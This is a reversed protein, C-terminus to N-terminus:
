VVVSYIEKDEVKLWEATYVKDKLFSFTVLYGKSHRKQNLYGLLQDVGKKEYKRGRWIKLEIISEHGGLNVIIDMRNDERTEPEIYYFGKGNIIPKLFCLFLLRGERELFKNDRERYEDQIIEQFKNLVQEMNLLGNSQLFQSPELVVNLESMMKKSIMYNYICKEFIQNSIYTSDGQKDVIGFTNGLKIIPNYIEFPIRKGEVLISYVLNYLDPYIELNKILDDFLTNETELTLNIARQIGSVSWDKELKEDILKCIKSVLYPYGKTFHYIEESLLRINMQINSENAYDLLMSSIENQSYRMEVEFDSAINWPSNYKSDNDPRMKLKLNKIDYVGALVVSYFTHDAGISTSLYKNRLMGLFNLFLIHNSAKDIEDILLVVRKAVSRVLESIFTNLDDLSVIKPYEKIFQIASDSKSYELSKNMQSLFNKSLMEPTEFAEEGLGELSMRIVLVNSEKQLRQFLLSFITTKGYQRPRNIVFYKGNEILEIIRDLKYSLDVM